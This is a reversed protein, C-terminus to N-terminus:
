ALAKGIHDAGLHILEGTPGEPDSLAKIWRQVTETSTEDTTALVNVPLGARKLELAATRAASLLGTALMARGPGRRGLLDSNHVVYVLARGGVAANVSIQFAETLASRIERWDDSVDPATYVEVERGTASDHLLLHGSDM